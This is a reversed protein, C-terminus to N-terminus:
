PNQKNQYKEWASLMSALLFSYFEDAANLRERAIQNDDEIVKLGQRSLDRIGALRKVFTEFIQAINSSISSEYYERRGGSDRYNSIKLQGLNQALQVNSSVGSRSIQLLSGIEEANLPRPSIWMLGAIRGLVRPQGSQDYYRGVEEVFDLMASTFLEKLDNSHDSM